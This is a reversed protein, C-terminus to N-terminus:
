FPDEFDGMDHSPVQTEVEQSAFLVDTVLQVNVIEIEPELYQKKM